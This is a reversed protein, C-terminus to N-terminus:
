NKNRVIACATPTQAAISQLGIDQLQKVWLSTLVPDKSPQCQSTGLITIVESWLGEKMYANVQMQKSATPLKAPLPQKPQIRLIALDAFKDASTDTPDCQIVLMWHYLKGVALPPELAPLPIGVIGPKMPPLKVITRQTYFVPGSTNVQSEAEEQRLEASISNGITYPVYFWLTPRDSATTSVVMQEGSESRYLPALTTLPTKVAPCAGSRHGAGTRNGPSVGLNRRSGLWSGPNWWQALVPEPLAILSCLAFAGFLTLLGPSRSYRKM